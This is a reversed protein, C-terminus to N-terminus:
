EIWKIHITFFIRNKQGMVNDTNGGEFRDSFCVFLYGVGREQVKYKEELQRLKKLVFKNKPEFKFAIGLDM